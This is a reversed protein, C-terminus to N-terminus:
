AKFPHTTCSIEGGPDGEVAQVFGPKHSITCGPLVPSPSNAGQEKEKVKPRSRPGRPSGQSEHHPGMIMTLGDGDDEGQQSSNARLNSTQGGELYPSLNAVKITAPVGFDESLDGEFAHDNERALDEIPDDESQGEEEEQLGCMVLMEGADAVEVVEEQQGEVKSEEMEEEQKEYEDFSPPLDFNVENSEHTPAAEISVVPEEADKRKKLELGISILEDRLQQISVRVQKTELDISDLEYELKLLKRTSMVKRNKTPQSKHKALSTNPMSNMLAEFREEMTKLTRM